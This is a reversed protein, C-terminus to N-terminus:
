AAPIMPSLLVFLERIAELDKRYWTYMTLAMMPYGYPNGEYWGMTKWVPFLDKDPDFEPNHLNSNSIFESLPRIQKQTVLRGMDFYVQVILDYRGTKSTLDFGIKQLVAEAEYREIEVNIGTANEFDFKMKDIAQLPPYDEGILRITKGQYPKAAQQLRENKPKGDTSVIVANKNHRYIFWAVFILVILVTVITVWTKKIM